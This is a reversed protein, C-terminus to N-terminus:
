EYWSVWLILWECKKMKRRNRRLQFMAVRGLWRNLLHVCVSFAHSQGGWSVVELKSWSALELRMAGRNKRKYIIEYKEVHKKIFCCYVHLRQARGNKVFDRRMRFFKRNKMKNTNPNAHKWNTTMKTSKWIGRPV